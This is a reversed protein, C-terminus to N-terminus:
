KKAAFEKETAEAIEGMPRGKHDTADKYKTKLEGLVKQAKEKEGSEWLTLALVFRGYGGVQCGDYYYCDSFKEVAKTLYEIREKGESMQGMYLTACGTRNAKDYKDILKKLSTKAEDSRWNKNAVQYLSEIEQLEEPKYASKDESGRKKAKAVNEERLKELKKENAAKGELESLRKELEAVRAKLAAPDEDAALLSSFPAFAILSGCIAVALKSKM